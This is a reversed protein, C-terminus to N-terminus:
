QISIGWVEGRNPGRGDNSDDSVVYVLSRTGNISYGAFGKGPQDISIIERGSAQVVDKLDDFRVKEPFAGYAVQLASPVVSIGHYALRHIEISIAACAWAEHKSFSFELLGYDRRMTKKNRKVEQMFEAGFVSEVEEPSMGPGVGLVRGLVLAEALFDLYSV